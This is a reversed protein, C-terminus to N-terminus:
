NSVYLRATAHLGRDKLHLIETTPMPGFVSHFVKQDTKHRVAFIHTRECVLSSCYQRLQPFVDVSATSYCFAFLGYQFFILLKNTNFASINKEFTNASGNFAINLRQEM